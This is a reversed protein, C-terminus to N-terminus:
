VEKLMYFMNNFYQQWSNYEGSVVHPFFKEREENKFLDELTPTASDEKYTIPTDKASCVLFDFQLFTSRSKNELLLMKSKKAYDQRLTHFDKYLNELEETGRQNLLMELSEITQNLPLFKLNDNEFDLLYIAFDYICRIIKVLSEFKPPTM